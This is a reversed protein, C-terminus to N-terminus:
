GILVSRKGAVIVVVVVVVVAVANMSLTCNFNKVFSSISVNFPSQLSHNGM